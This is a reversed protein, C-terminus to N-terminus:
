IKSYHFANEGLHKRALEVLHAHHTFLLVQSGQGMRSLAALANGAREDDFHVLLDDLIMPMPEHDELYLELGALRLSLYLQDRTGESMADVLVEKGSDANGRVGAIVPDDGKAYSAVIGGFASGTVDSFWRGAKEMFPGQNRKRFEDIQSRLLSVALRLRIFREADTRLRSVAFAAEQEHRAAEDRAEELTEKRKEWGLLAKQRDEVKIKLERLDNEIEALQGEIGDAAEQEVRRIFDDVPEGRTLGALSERLGDIKTQHSIRAEFNVLFEDLEEEDTLESKTLLANFTERASELNQKERELALKEDNKSSQLNDFKNQEKKATELADWLAQALVEPEAAPLGLKAATERTRKEFEEIRKRLRKCEALLNKWADFDLFMERRSRLLDIAPGPQLDEPLTLQDRCRNWENWTSKKETELGPMDTELKHLKKEAGEIQKEAAAADVQAEELEKLLDTALRFLASFNEDKTEDLAEALNRAMKEVTGRDKELKGSDAEWKDWQRGFEEWTERWETMERPTSPKVGCESWAEVWEEGLNTKRQGLEEAEAELGLLDKEAKALRVRKEEIVAVANAETRLRDAIEDVSKVSEPYAEELPKGPVFKEHAGGGKWDQLVLAWGRERHSRTSELDELSPLDRQRKLREIETKLDQATEQAKARDKKMQKSERDLEDFKDRFREITSRSPIALKRTKEFDEPAGALERHLNELERHLTELEDHRSEPGDALDEVPTARQVLGKLNELLEADVTTANKRLEDLEEKLKKADYRADELAKSCETAAAAKEKAESFKPKTIRLSELNELPVDLGLDRCANIVADKKAEAKAEETALANKNERYAGADMHIGDILAKGALVEPAIDCNGAAKQLQEIEKGIREVEEAAKERSSRAEKIEDAFSESLDPITPLQDLQRSQEALKGVMEIADQCRELWTKRNTKEKEEKLWSELEDSANKLGEEVEEWKKSTVLVEKKMRLHESHDKLADLITKGKRAKPAFLRGAEDELAQIVREVPTGGISASFLTKGLNGNGSLLEDAGRRLEDAGMGFMSDFYAKDVAGLLKGLVSEPLPNNNKDRLTNKNAKCRQFIRASGSSDEVEGIVRLQKYDHSFNDVTRVPIGFLLARIARLLSSKGAENPGYILHFDTDTKPLELSFDTFPGYAPIDIRNFRM